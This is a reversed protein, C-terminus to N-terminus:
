AMTVNNLVLETPQEVFWIYDDKMVNYPLVASYGDGQEDKVYYTELPKTHIRKEGLLFGNGLFPGYRFNMDFAGQAVFGNQFSQIHGCMSEVRLLGEQRYIIKYIGPHFPNLRFRYAHSGVCPTNLFVRGVNFM